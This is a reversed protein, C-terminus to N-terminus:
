ETHYRFTLSVRANPIVNKSQRPVEHTFEKQFHGAMWVVSGDPVPVDAVIKKTKKNRIRFIREAGYVIAVVGSAGLRSEDDSHAGIYKEGNQYLNALVGNYHDKFRKNVKKMLKKLEPTLPVAPSLKGSYYYGKSEDSFFQVDRRQHCIKGLVVVEPEHQLPLAFAAARYKSAGKFHGVFLGSRKTEVKLELGLEAAIQKYGEM